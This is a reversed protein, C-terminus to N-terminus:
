INFPKIPKKQKAKYKGERKYGQGEGVHLGKWEGTNPNITVPEDDGPKHFDFNRKLPNGKMKFPGSM